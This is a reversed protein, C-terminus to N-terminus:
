DIEIRSTAPNFTICHAPNGDDSAIQIRPVGAPTGPPCNDTVGAVLGLTGLGEASGDAAFEITSTPGGLIDALLNPSTMETRDPLNGPISETGAGTPRVLCYDASVGNCTVVAGTNSFVFTATGLRTTASTHALRLDSVVQNTASDVRRGEVVGFWFSMAVTALIGMIIITTMVEVFTFGRESQWFWHLKV